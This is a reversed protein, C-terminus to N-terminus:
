QDLDDLLRRIAVLEDLLSQLEAQTGRDGVADSSKLDLQTSVPPQASAAQDGTLSDFGAGMDSDGTQASLSLIAKPGAEKLFRQAGKITYGQDYLLARIVRILHIDEPRYYRRGGGRKMPRIQSFKSEWFRLVHRPVDLEAAVEGITRFADASKGVSASHTNHGTRATTM